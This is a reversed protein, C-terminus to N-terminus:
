LYVAHGLLAELGFLFRFIAEPSSLSVTGEIANPTPQNLRIQFERPSADPADAAGLFGTLIQRANASASLYTVSASRRAAADFRFAVGVAGADPANAAAQGAFPSTPDLGAQSKQYHRVGWAPSDTKVYKWEPLADPLSRSGSPRNMRILVTRLYADDSAIIVVNPRAFAVFTTWVDAELKEEFVMVHIGAIEDGRVAASPSNKMFSDREANATSDLVIIECGEYRMEGLRAPPRFHRAGEIAFSVVKGSMAKQLGGNKMAFLGLPIARIRVELEAVPLEPLQVSYNNLASFDPLPFPGNAGLITETDEPLWSLVNNLTVLAADSQPRTTQGSGLVVCLLAVTSCAGPAAMRRYRHRM